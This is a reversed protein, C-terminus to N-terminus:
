DSLGTNLIYKEAPGQNATADTLIGILFLCCTSLISYNTSSKNVFLNIIFTDIYPVMFFLVIVWALELQVRLRGQARLSPTLFHNGFGLLVSYPVASWRSLLPSRAPSSLQRLTVQCTPFCSFLYRSKIKRGGESRRSTIRMAWVWGFDSPLYARQHPGYLDTEWPLLCPPFPLPSQKQLTLCLVDLASVLIKLNQACVGPLRTSHQFWRSFRSWHGPCKTKMCVRSWLKPTLPLLSEWSLFEKRQEKINM